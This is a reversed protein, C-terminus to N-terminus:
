LQCTAGSYEGGRQKAIDLPTLSDINIVEISASKWLLLEVIGTHGGKVALHLPTNKDMAGTSAGKWLLAEVIGNHGSKAGLHLPTSHNKRNPYM